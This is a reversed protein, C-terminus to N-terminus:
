GQTVFHTALPKWDTPHALMTRLVACLTRLNLDPISPALKHIFDM